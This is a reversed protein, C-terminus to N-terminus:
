APGRLTFEIGGGGGMHIVTCHSGPADVERINVLDKFEQKLTSHDVAAHVEALAKSRSWCETLSDRLPMAIQELSAPYDYGGDTAGVVVWHHRPVAAFGWCPDKTTATRSDDVHIPWGTISSRHIVRAADAIAQSRTRCHDPGNGVRDALAEDLEIAETSQSFDSPLVIADSPLPQAKAQVVVENYKDQYAVLAPPEDHRAYRWFRRCNDVPDGSPGIVDTQGALPGGEPLLCFTQIQQEAPEHTPLPEPRQTAQPTASQNGYLVDPGDGQGVALPVLVAVAAVAPLTLALQRRRRIRTARRHVRGMGGPPVPLDFAPDALATELDM